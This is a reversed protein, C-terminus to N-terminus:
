SSIIKFDSRAFLRTVKYCYGKNRHRIHMINEALKKRTKEADELESMYISVFEDVSIANDGDSNSRFFLDDARKFSFTFGNLRFMDYIEDRALSNYTCDRNKIYKDNLSVNKTM